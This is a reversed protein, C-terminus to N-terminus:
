TETTLALNLKRLTKIFTSQNILIEIIQEVPKNILEALQQIAWYFQQWFKQMITPQLWQQSLKSFLYGISQHQEIAKLHSLVNYCMLSTTADSIQGDFDRSQSKGYGLLQKLEKFSTEISWRNQNIKFARQASLSLDTTIIAQWKSNRNQEKFYIIHLKQEKFIVKAVVFRLGLHRNRKILKSRNLSRILKGVTYKNNKYSYLWNNFKPRSILHLNEKRLFKVLKSNFFWSDVLLYRAKFGARLAAKLQRILSDSKKDFLGAQRKAGFSNAARQKNFRAKLQSAKMGQNGKKGLELHFSFSLHLLHKGSWYALNMSKFGLHYRHSVHSFIKGIWEICRGRKITDTDDAIFCAVKTTDRSNAAELEIGKMMTKAQSLQIGAWNILPNNKVKYLVDKGLVLIASWSSQMNQHVNKLQLLKSSILWYIIGTRDYRTRSDQPIDKLRCKMITKLVLHNLKGSQKFIEKINEFFSNDEM